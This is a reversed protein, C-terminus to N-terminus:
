RVGGTMTRFVAQGITTVVGGLVGAVAIITNRQTKLIQIDLAMSTIAKTLEKIEGVLEKIGDDSSAHKEELRAVSDGLQTLRDWYHSRREDSDRLMVSGQDQDM